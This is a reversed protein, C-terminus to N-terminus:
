KERRVRKIDDCLLKITCTEPWYCLSNQGDVHNLEEEMFAQKGRADAHLHSAKIEREKSSIQNECDHILIAVISPHSTIDAVLQSYNLLQGETTIAYNHAM